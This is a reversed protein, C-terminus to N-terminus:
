FSAMWSLTGSERRKERKQLARHGTSSPDLGSGDVTNLLAPRGGTTQESLFRWHYSGTISVKAWSRFLSTVLVGCEM